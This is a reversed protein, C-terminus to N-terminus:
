HTEANPVPIRPPTWRTASRRGVGAMWVLPRDPLLGALLVTIGSRAGTAPTPMGYRSLLSVHRARSRRAATYATLGPASAALTVADELAISTGQGLSPLMAHAADGLLAVRGRVLSRPVPLDIVENRVVQSAASILGPVPDTWDAFHSLDGIGPRGAAYVMTRGGTMPFIGVDGGPGWVFGAFDPSPGDVIWRWVTIGTHRLAIDPWMQQRVVSHVGDAAVVLDFTATASDTVVVGAEHVARVQQGSRICEAPLADALLAILEARSLLIMGAYGTADSLRSRLLTRGRATRVESIRDPVMHERIRDGLGLAGLATIGNVPLIIASGVEAFEPAQEFVTVDWGAQRLAIAAALGGVGGGVIGARRSLRTM